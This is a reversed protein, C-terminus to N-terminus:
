AGGKLRVVRKGRLAQQILLRNIAGQSLSPAGCRKGVDFQEASAPILALIDEGVLRDFVVVEAQQLGYYSRIAYM